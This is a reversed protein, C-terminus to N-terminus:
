SLNADPLIMETDYRCLSIDIKQSGFIGPKFKDLKIKYEKRIGSRNLPVAMFSAFNSFYFNMCM